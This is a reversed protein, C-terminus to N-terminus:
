LYHTYPTAILLRNPTIVKSIKWSSPSLKRSDGM